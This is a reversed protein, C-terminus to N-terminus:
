ANIKEKFRQTEAELISIDFDRDKLSELFEDWRKLTMARVEELSPYKSSTRKFQVIWDLLEFHDNSNLWGVFEAPFDGGVPLAQHYCKGTSPIYVLHNFRDFKVPQNDEEKM